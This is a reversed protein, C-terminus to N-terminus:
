YGNFWTRVSVRPSVSVPVTGQLNPHDNVPSKLDKTRKTSTSVWKVVVVM